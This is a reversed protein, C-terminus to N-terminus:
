KKKFTEPDRGQANATAYYVKKGKEAGYQDQFKKIIEAVENIVDDPKVITQANVAEALEAETMEVPATTPETPIAAPQVPVVEAEQVPAVEPTNVAVPPPAPEEVNPKAPEASSANKHNTEWDTVIAQRLEKSVAGANQDLMATNFLDIQNGDQYVYFENESPEVEIEYVKGDPSNFAFKVKQEDGDEKLMASYDCSEFIAHLNKKFDDLNM